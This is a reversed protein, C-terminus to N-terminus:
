AAMPPVHGEAALILSFTTPQAYAAGLQANVAFFLMLLMAIGARLSSFDFHVPLSAAVNTCHPIAATRDSFITARIGASRGFPTEGTTLKLTVRFHSPSIRPRQAKSDLHAPRDGLQYPVLSQVQCEFTRIRGAWGLELHNALVSPDCSSRLAPYSFIDSLTL